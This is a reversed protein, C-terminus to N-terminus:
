SKLYAAIRLQEDIPPLPIEIDRIVTQSINPQAGGFSAEILENRITLLWFFLYEQDIESSPTIACVAQNTAAAMGLIGLRGVTAGYMAILLTGSPFIKASSKALGEETIFEEVQTILGDPLEGSKIWPINGGYYKLVGRQPTGGSSTEAVDGLRVVRVNM